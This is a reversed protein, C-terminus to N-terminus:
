AHTLTELAARCEPHLKALGGGRAPTYPEIRAAPDLKCDRVGLLCVRIGPRTDTASWLAYISVSSASGYGDVEDPKMGIREAMYQVVAAFDARDGSYLWLSVRSETDSPDLPLEPMNADIWAQGAELCERRARIAAEDEALKQRWDSAPLSRDIVAMARPCNQM